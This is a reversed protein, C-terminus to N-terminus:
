LSVESAVVASLCYASEVALEAPLYILAGPGGLAGCPRVLRLTRSTASTALAFKPKAFIPM